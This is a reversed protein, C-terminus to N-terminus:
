IIVVGIWSYCLLINISVVGRGGNADPFISDDMTTNIATSSCTSSPAVSLDDDSATGDFSPYCASAITRLLLIITTSTDAVSINVNAAIGDYTSFVGM